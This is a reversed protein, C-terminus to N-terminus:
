NLGGSVNGVWNQSDGFIQLVSWVNQAGYKYTNPVIMAENDTRDMNMYRKPLSLMNYLDQEILKFAAVVM